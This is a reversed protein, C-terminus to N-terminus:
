SFTGAIATANKPFGYKNQVPTGELCYFALLVFGGLPLLSILLWWGSRNTDHLRRIALALMPILLGLFVVIDFFGLIGSVTKSGIVAAVMMPVLLALWNFLVFWWYESRTARGEFNAYQKLGSQIAQQFTM